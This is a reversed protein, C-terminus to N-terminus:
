WLCRRRNRHISNPFSCVMKSFFQFFLYFRVFKQYVQPMLNKRLLHRLIQPLNTRLLNQLPLLSHNPLPTPYWLHNPLLEMKIIRMQMEMKHLLVVSAVVVVAHLPVMQVAATEMQVLYMQVPHVAIQALHVVIQHQAVELVVGQHERKTEVLLHLEGTIRHHAAANAVNVAAAVELFLLLQHLITQM